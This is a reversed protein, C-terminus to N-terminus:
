FQAEYQAPDITAGIVLPRGPSRASLADALAQPSEVRVGDCDMSAALKVIDTHEIRTGTGVSRRTMQKLEIRNLGGDGMFGVVPTDPQAPSAVIGAPLSFGMSSLGNTMQVAKPRYTTWGQGVLLKHSGVDSSVITERPMVERATDVVDTPNLATGVRGQRLRNGSPQIPLLPRRM